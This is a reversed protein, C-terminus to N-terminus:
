LMSVEPLHGRMLSFMQCSPVLFETQVATCSVMKVIALFFLYLKCNVFHCKAKVWTTTQPCAWLSSTLTDFNCREKPSIQQEGIVTSILSFSLDEKFCNCHYVLMTFWSYVLGAWQIWHMQVPIFIPLIIALDATSLPLPGSLAQLKHSQPLASCSFVSNGFSPKGPAAWCNCKYEGHVAVRNLM